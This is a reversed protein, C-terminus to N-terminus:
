ATDPRLLDGIEAAAKELRKVHAAVRTTGARASPGALGLGAAVNGSADFVPVAVGWVGSNTEEYSMARGSRRISALEERLLNPKTITANWLKELGQSIVREIDEESMYALLIKQSAGAHLPLQRGPEVSLRLPQSSEVRELCVSRDRAENLVTLLATEGTQEALRGLVPLALVRLGTVTRAREGLEMAALGLHYRKTSEDRSLIGHKRLTSLIRHVTPMPLDCARAIESMTWTPREASFLSLVAIARDLVQLGGRTEREGTKQATM